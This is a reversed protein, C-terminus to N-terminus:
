GSFRDVAKIETPVEEADQLHFPILAPWGPQTMTTTPRGSVFGIESGLSVCGRIQLVRNIFLKIQNFNLRVLLPPPLLHSEFEHTKSQLCPMTGKEYTDVNGSEPTFERKKKIAM